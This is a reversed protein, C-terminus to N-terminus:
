KNLLSRLVIMAEKDLSSKAGNFIQSLIDQYEPREKSSLSMLPRDASEKQIQFLYTVEVSTTSSPLSSNLLARALNKITTAKQITVYYSPNKPDNNWRYIYPNIQNWPIGGSNTKEAIEVLYKMLEDEM